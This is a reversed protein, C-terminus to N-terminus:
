AQDYMSNISGTYSAAISHYDGDTSVSSNRRSSSGPAQSQNRTLSWFTDLKQKMKMLDTRRTELRRRRKAMGPSEQVLDELRGPIAAEQTINTFLLHQLGEVFTQNLEHEITMPVYDIVRQPSFTITMLIHSKLHLNM